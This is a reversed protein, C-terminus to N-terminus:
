TRYGVQLPFRDENSRLDVLVHVTCAVAHSNARWGPRSDAQQSPSHRVTVIYLQYQPNYEDKLQGFQRVM